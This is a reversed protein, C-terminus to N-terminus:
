DRGHPFIERDIEKAFRVYNNWESQKIPAGFLRAIDGLQHQIAPAEKALNWADLLSKYRNLIFKEQDREIIRDVTTTFWKLPDAEKVIDWFRYVLRKSRRDLKKSLVEWFENFEEIADFQEGLTSAKALREEHKRGAERLEAFESRLKLLENPLQDRARCRSLLISTLPPIPIVTYGRHRLLDEVKVQYIEALRHYLEVSPTTSKFFELQISAAYLPLAPHFQSAQSLGLISSIFKRLDRKFICIAHNCHDPAGGLVLLATSEAPMKGIPYLPLIRRLMGKDVNERYERYWTKDSDLTEGSATEFIYIVTGIDEQLHEPGEVIVRLMKERVLTDVIPRGEPFLPAALNLHMADTFTVFIADSLVFSEVFTNLSYLFQPTPRGYGGVVWDLEDLLNVVTLASNYGSLPHANAETSSRANVM